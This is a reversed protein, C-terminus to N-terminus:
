RCQHSTQCCGTCKCVTRGTCGGTEQGPGSSLLESCLLDEISSLCYVNKILLECCAVVLCRPIQIKQSKRKEKRQIQSVNRKSIVIRFQDSKIGALVLHKNLVCLFFLLVFVTCCSTKLYWLIVNKGFFESELKEGQSMCSKRQIQTWGQSLSIQLVWLALRYFCRRLKWLQLPQWTLQDASSVSHKVSSPLPQGVTTLSLTDTCSPTNSSPQPPQPTATSTRKKRKCRNKSFSGELRMSPQRIPM